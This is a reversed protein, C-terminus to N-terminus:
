AGDDMEPRPPGGAASTELWAFAPHGVGHHLAYCAPAARTQIRRPIWSVEETPRLVHRLHADAMTPYLGEESAISGVTESICVDVKEPLTVATSLGEIVTIVSALDADRVTERARKASAEDAEIAYVRRAGARAAAIALLAHPGTGLDLATLTGNPAAQFRRRIAEEYKSVRRVDSRMREHNGESFLWRSPDFFSETQWCLTTAQWKVASMCSATSRIAGMHRAPDFASFSQAHPVFGATTASSILGTLM